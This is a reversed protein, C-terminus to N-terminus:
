PAPPCDDMASVLKSCHCGCSAPTFCDDGLLEVADCDCDPPPVLDHLDDEDRLTCRACPECSSPCSGEEVSSTSYWPDVGSELDGSRYICRGDDTSFCCSACEPEEPSRCGVLADPDIPYDYPGAASAGAVGADPEAAGSGGGGISAVGASGGPAAGGRSTSGGRGADSVSGAAGDPSPSGARGTSRDGGAGGAPASADAAGGAGRPASGGIGAGPSAGSAGGLAPSGGSGGSPSSGASGHDAGAAAGPEAAGGGAGPEGVHTGPARGSSECACALLPILLVCVHSENMKNRPGDAVSPLVLGHFLRRSTPGGHTEITGPKPPAFAPTASQPRM